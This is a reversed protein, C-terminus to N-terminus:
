DKRVRVSKVAAQILDRIAQSRSTNMRKALKDLKALTGESVFTEIRKGNSRKSKAEQPM